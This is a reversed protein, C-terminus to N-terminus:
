RSVDSFCKIDFLLSENTIRSQLYTRISQSTTKLIPRIDKKATRSYTINQGGLHRPQIVSPFYNECLYRVAGIHKQRVALGLVSLSSPHSLPMATKTQTVEGFMSVFHKQLVKLFAVLLDEHAEQVVYTFVDDYVYKTTTKIDSKRVCCSTPNTWTKSWQDVIADFESVNGLNVFECLSQVFDTRALFRSILSIKPRTSDRANSMSSSGRTKQDPVPQGRELPHVAPPEESRAVEQVHQTSDHIYQFATSFSDGHQVILSQNPGTPPEM